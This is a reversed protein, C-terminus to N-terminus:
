RPGKYRVNHHCSAAPVIHRMSSQAPVKLEHQNDYVVNLPICVLRLIARLKICDFRNWPPETIHPLPPLVPLEKDACRELACM